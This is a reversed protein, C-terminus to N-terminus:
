LEPLLRTQIGIHPRCGGVLLPSNLPPAYGEVPLILSVRHFIKEEPQLEQLPLALTRPLLHESVEVQQESPPSPLPVPHVHTVAPHVPPGLKSGRQHIPESAMLRLVIPHVLKQLPLLLESFSNAIIDM